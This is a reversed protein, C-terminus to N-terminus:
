DHRIVIKGFHRRGALHHLAERAETFPFVRDVIPRLKHYGIARNMAKFDARSGVGIPHLSVGAFAIGADPGLGNLAPGTLLGVLSVRGGSAVSRISRAITGAGGIEVAVDVGRGGTLRRVEQDWDPTAVYNVVADAGLAKLRRAKDDSSTTAIVQAGFLKALQLAFVSVGGTGQVLVSDGPLLRANGVLASWATVAACPLTAAEEYSLHEPIAVVGQEDVVVAETLPGDDQFGRGFPDSYPPKAGAHWDRFFTLAVRDGVRHRAVEPGTAVVEGAGDSLPIVGRRVWDGFAGHSASLDRYNVSSARIRVLMQGRGPRPEAHDRMVLSEPGDFSELHYARM